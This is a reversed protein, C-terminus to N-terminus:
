EHVKVEIPTTIVNGVGDKVGVLTVTATNDITIGFDLTLTNGNTLPTGSFPYTGVGTPGKKTLTANFTTDEYYVDEHFQIIAESGSSDGYTPSPPLHLKLQTM